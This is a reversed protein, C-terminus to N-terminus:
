CLWYQRNFQLDLVFSLNPATWIQQPRWMMPAVALIAITLSTLYATKALSVGLDASINQFAPIIAAGTFTSM